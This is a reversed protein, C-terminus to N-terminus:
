REPPAGAARATPRGNEGVSRALRISVNRTGQLYPARMVVEHQLIVKYTSSIGRLLKILDGVEQGRGEMLAVAFCESKKLQDPPTGM